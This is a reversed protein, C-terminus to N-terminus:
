QWYDERAKFSFELDHFGRGATASHLHVNLPLLFVLAYVNAVIADRVGAENRVPLVIAINFAAVPNGDQDGAALPQLIWARLETPMFHAEVATTGNSDRIVTAAILPLM